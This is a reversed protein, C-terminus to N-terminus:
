GQSFLRYLNEIVSSPVSETFFETGHVKSGRGFIGAYYIVGKGSFTVVFLLRKKLYWELSIDGDPNPVISPSPVSSPLKQLFRIAEACAAESIPVAEYGDWNPKQHKRFADIVADITEVKKQWTIPLLFRDSGVGPIWLAEDGSRGSSFSLPNLYPVLTSM